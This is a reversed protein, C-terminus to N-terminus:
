HAAMIDEEILSTPTKWELFRCLSLFKSFSTLIELQAHLSFQIELPWSLFDAGDKLRFFFFFGKFRKKLCRNVGELNILGGGKGQWSSFFLFSFIGRWSKRREKQRPCPESIDSRPGFSVSPVNGALLVKRERSSLPTTTIATTYQRRTWVIGIVRKSPRFSFSFAPFFFIPSYHRPLSPSFVSPEKQPCPVEVTSNKSYSKFMLYNM